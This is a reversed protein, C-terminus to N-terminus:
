GISPYGVAVELLDELGVLVDPKRTSLRATHAHAGAGTAAAEDRGPRLRRQARIIVLERETRDRLSPRHTLQGAPDRPVSESVPCSATLASRVNVEIVQSPSPSGIDDQSGGGIAM